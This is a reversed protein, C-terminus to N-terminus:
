NRKEIENRKTENENTICSCQGHWRANAAKLGKNSSVQMFKKQERLVKTVKKHFIKGNKERFKFSIKSFYKKFEENNDCGCMKFTKDNLKLSGGISYLALILSLYIGREPPNMAIFDPDTLFADFELPVFKIKRNKM